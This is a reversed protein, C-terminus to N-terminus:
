CIYECECEDDDEEECCCEEDEVEEDEVEEDEDEASEINVEITGSGGGVDSSCSGCNKLYLDDLSAVKCPFTPKGIDTSVLNHLECWWLVVGERTDTPIPPLQELEPGLAYRCSECPYLAALSSVLAEMGRRQERSPTHKPYKAAASHLYHWTSRGIVTRWGGAPFAGGERAWGAPDAGYSVADHSSAAVASPNRTPPLTGIVVQGVGKREAIGPQHGVAEFAASGDRGCWEEIKPLGGPHVYCPDADWFCSFDYVEGLVGVWCDPPTSHGAVQAWTHTAGADSAGGDAGGASSELTALVVAAAAAEACGGGTCGILAAKRLAFNGEALDGGAKEAALATLAEVDLGPPRWGSALLAPENLRVHGLKLALLAGVLGGVLGSLADFRMRFLPVFFVLWLWLWGGM